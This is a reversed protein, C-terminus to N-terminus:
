FSDYQYRLENRHATAANLLDVIRSYQERSESHHNRWIAEIQEVLQEAARFNAFLQEDFTRTKM